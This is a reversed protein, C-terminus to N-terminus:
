SDFPLVTFDNMSECPGMDETPYDSFYLWSDSRYSFLLLFLRIERFRLLLFDPLVGKIRHQDMGM